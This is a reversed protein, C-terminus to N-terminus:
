NIQSPKGAYHHTFYAYPVVADCLSCYLLGYKAPKSPNYQKIEIHGRYPCLTEDVTLFPSPYRMSANRKNIEEFIDRIYALRDLNWQETQTTKNDFRLLHALFTNGRYQRPLSITQVKTTGYIM